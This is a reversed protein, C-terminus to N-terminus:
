QYWLWYMYRHDSAKTEQFEEHKQRQMERLRRRHDRLASDEHRSAALEPLRREIGTDHLVRELFSETGTVRFGPHKAQLVSILQKFFASGSVRKEDHVDHRTPRITLTPGEKIVEVAWTTGTSDFVSFVKEDWHCANFLKTLDELSHVRELTADLKTVVVLQRFAVSLLAQGEATKM